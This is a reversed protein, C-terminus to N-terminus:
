IIMPLSLSVLWSLWAKNALELGILFRAESFRFNVMQDQRCYVGGV